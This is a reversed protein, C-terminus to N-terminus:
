SLYNNFFIKLHIGAGTVDTRVVEGTALVSKGSNPFNWKLAIEQGIEFPMVTEIFVGSSSVDRLTANFQHDLTKCHVPIKSGLFRKRADRRKDYDFRM